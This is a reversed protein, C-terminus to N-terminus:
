QGVSGAETSESGESLKQDVVARLEKAKELVQPELGQTATVADLMQGADSYRGRGMLAEGLGLFGQINSPEM